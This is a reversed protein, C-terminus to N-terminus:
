VRCTYYYGYGCKTSGAMVDFGCGYTYQYGCNINTERKKDKEKYDTTLSCGTLTCLLVILLIINKRKIKFLM